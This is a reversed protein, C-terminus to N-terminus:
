KRYPSQISPIIESDYGRSKLMNLLYEHPAIALTKRWAYAILSVRRQVHFPGRVDDVNSGYKGVMNQHLSENVLDCSDSDSNEDTTDSSTLSNTSLSTPLRSEPSNDSSMTPLSTSSSWTRPISDRTSSKVEVFDQSSTNLKLGASAIAEEAWQHNNPLAITESFSRKM